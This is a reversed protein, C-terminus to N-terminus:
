EKGVLLFKLQKFEEEMGEKSEYEDTYENDSKSLLIIQYRKMNVESPYTECKYISEIQNLNILVGTSCEYWM